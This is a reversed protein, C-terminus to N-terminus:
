AADEVVSVAGDAGITRSGSPLDPGDDDLRVVAGDDLLLLRQDPFRRALLSMRDTDSLRLRRRAHPLAVIGRVRGLGRDYVESASVGHTAFDHFLVVQETLAMAGASWAIVPKDAPIRVDFLRLTRMLSRVDGGAIVVAACADLAGAVESRHWGIVESHEAADTAIEDHLQELQEGYWRDVDRVAEIAASHAVPGISEVSTRHAVAAVTEVAGQLRIGYFARLEDHRDRFRLAARAFDRDKSLSDVLRHYLRLNDGRGQLYGGLEDDDGEREEWGSNIMAVSGELGLSRLTKDVTITFRQPGLLITTM